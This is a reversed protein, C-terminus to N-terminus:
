LPPLIEIMEALTQMRQNAIVNHRGYLCYSRDLELFENITDDSQVGLYSQPYSGHPVSKLKLISGLPLHGEQILQQALLPFRDLYIRIVGFEVPREGRNSILVVERFLQGSDIYHSLVRLRISDSHFAELTPTMDHNHVLIGRYPQPIEAPDVIEIPPPEHGKRSYAEALPNM